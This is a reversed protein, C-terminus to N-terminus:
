GRVVKLLIWWLGGIIVALAIWGGLDTPHPLAAARGAAGAGRCGVVLLLGITALWLRSM